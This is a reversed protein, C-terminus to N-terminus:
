HSRELESARQELQRASVRMADAAKRLQRSASAVATAVRQPSPGVWTNPGVDDTRGHLTAADLRRALHRLVDARRRLESSTLAMSALFPV